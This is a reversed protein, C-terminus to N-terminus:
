TLRGAVPLCVLYCGVPTCVWVPRTGPPCVTAQATGALMALGAVAAAFGLRMKPM